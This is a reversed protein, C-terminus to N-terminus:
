HGLGKLSQIIAVTIKDDKEVNKVKVPLYHLAPACWLTTERRSNPKHRRLKLTLMKGLPTQIVEQGQADFRYTKTKGGDAIVYSLHRKGASLDRMIIFQYLLKDVVGPELKMKWTSGNVLNIVEKKDWDFRISVHRQKHSGTQTYQYHLPQASDTGLRGRSEETIKDDRFLSFLGTTETKSRYRYEGDGSRTFRRQMEAVKLGKIYLAYKAKFNLSGGSEAPAATSLMALCLCIPLWSRTCM